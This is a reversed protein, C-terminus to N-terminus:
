RTRAQIAQWIKVGDIKRDGAKVRRAVAKDIAERVKEDNALNAAIFAVEYDEVASQWVKGASVAVGTDASRVPEPASSVFAPAAVVEVQEMAEADDAGEAILRQREAEAAAEAEKRAAAEAERRAAEREADIRRLTETQKREIVGKGRELDVILERKMGDAVRGANLYPEKVTKHAEGVANIMARFSRVLDGAKGVADEDPLEARDAAACLEDIRLRYTAHKALMAEHFDAKVQEEPPPNNHGIAAPAPPAEQEVPKAETTIPM